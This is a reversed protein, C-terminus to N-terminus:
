AATERPARLQRVQASTLAISSVVVVLVSAGVLVAPAGYQEALHGAILVAFPGFALSGVWEYANVRSLSDAPVERQFTTEWLVGFVDVAIGSCFTAIAVVVVPAGLGLLLPTPALPFLLLACYLMPRRPRIRIAIFVGLVLGLSNATLVISWAVSGGMTNRAVIPGLLGYTVNVAGNTFAVTLVIVWLWQRSAFERWGARLDSVFNRGSTRTTAPLRLSVLLIASFLFSVANVLLGWGGGVVAVTAGALGFGGIRALNTSLRLLGNATQRSEVDVVEPVVGGFAPLFLAMACGTLASCGVLLSLPAWGSLLMLAIGTHGSAALLDAAVLVRFRPIRDAIVGGFLMLAVRSVAHGALVVGLTVADAGPLALIGFAMALPAFADGLVSITRAAFLTAFRRQCLIRVDARLSANV